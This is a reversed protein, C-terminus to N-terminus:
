VCSTNNNCHRGPLTVLGTCTRLVFLASVVLMMPVSNMIMIIIIMIMSNVSHNYVTINNHPRGTPTVLGTCTRFVFPLLSVVLLVRISHSIAVVREDAGM